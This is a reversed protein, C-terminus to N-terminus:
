MLFARYALILIVIQAILMLPFFLAFYWHKTKHHMLTMGLVGGLGGFLGTFIFLTKEPIRRTQPKGGHQKIAKKKDIAMLAFSIINMICLFAILIILGINM